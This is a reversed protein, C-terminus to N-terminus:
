EDWHPLAHTGADAVVRVIGLATVLGLVHRDADLVPVADLDHEVLTQACTRLDDDPHLAIWPAYGLDKVRIESDRGLDYRHAQAIHRPGLVGLCHGNDDLVILHRSPGTLFREIVERLCADVHITGGADSMLERATYSRPAADPQATLTM